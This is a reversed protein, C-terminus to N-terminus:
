QGGSLWSTLGGKVYGSRVLGDDRVMFPVGRLGFLQMTIVRKAIPGTDCMEFKDNPIDAGKVKGRLVKDALDKDKSCLAFRVAKISDEGMVPIAVFKFGYGEEQLADVMLDKCSPCYPDYFIVVEKKGSGIVLPTLEDVKFKLKNLELYDNAFKAEELTTIDKQNWDVTTV